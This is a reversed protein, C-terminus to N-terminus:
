IKKPLCKNKIRREVQHRYGTDLLENKWENKKIVDRNKSPKQFFFVPIKDFNKKELPFENENLFYCNKDKNTAFIDIFPWNWGYRFKKIGRHDNFFIKYGGWFKSISVNYKKIKSQIYVKQYKIKSQM